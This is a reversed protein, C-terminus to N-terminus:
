LQSQLSLTTNNNLFFYQAETLETDSYLDFVLARFTLLLRLSFHSHRFVAAVIIYIKGIREAYQLLSHPM